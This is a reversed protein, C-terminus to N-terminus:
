QVVREAGTGAGQAQQEKTIAHFEKILQCWISEEKQCKM